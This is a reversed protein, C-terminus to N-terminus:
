DDGPTADPMHDDDESSFGLRHAVKKISGTISPDRYHEGNHQAYQSRAKAAAVEGPIATPECIHRSNYHRMLDVHIHNYHYVNAGPALVTTFEDCAASQVDHLFGQEEPSGHWGYQVSVKHGDALDFEAVDLANGFAHESIHANPNGNMGRCSYASIQKIEVVPQRFWRQAAPQVANGIWQDLASVIPCALTAPPSVQVSATMMPAAPPGLPPPGNRPPPYSPPAPATTSPGGYYPHPPGGPIGVDEDDDPESLGPPTLSLPQGAQEASYVPSAALAPRPATPYASTTASYTSYPSQPAGPVPPLVSSQIASSRVPGTQVSAPQRTAPSGGPWQQPMAGNPIAGPPRAVDDDYALPPGDGGLASVKIPYDIGCAGAGNVASIRVRAPSDKVAGSNLCAIEAEHRWPEREALMYHSCGALAILAVLVLSSVLYWRVGRTM